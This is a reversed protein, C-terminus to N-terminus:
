GLWPPHLHCGLVHDLIFQLFLPVPSTHWVCNRPAQM